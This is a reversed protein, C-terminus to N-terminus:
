LFLLVYLGGVCVCLCSPLLYSCKGLLMTTLFQIAINIKHTSYRVKHTVSLRGKNGIHMIVRVKRVINVTVVKMAHLGKAKNNLVLFM